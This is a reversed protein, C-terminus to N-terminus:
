LYRAPSCCGPDFPQESGSIFNAILRGSIPGQSFGMHSHGFAMWLNKHNPAPGVLPLTDPVTPRRGMWPEDLLLPGMPLAERARPIVKELQLPTPETERYVLNTGSSVRMGMNMQSMVYSADVDFIPRNLMRGELPEIITHYGREIALPNAYGLQKLIRPTWAGLCIVLRQHAGQQDGNLMWQGSRREVSHIDSQRIEGGADVFMKAYAKCLEEPNRISISDEILVGCDFIPNLDPELEAIEEATVVRYAVECQDMLDREIQDRVFSERGRYLKLGGSENALHTVGAQKIWERHMDISPITIRRMSHGDKFYTRRNCRILFRLLWPSLAAFHPYHLLFDTDQNFALRHLRHWLEPAAIPTINSYSLVGANGSSTEEGVGRRDILTVQYDRRQLELACSIGVMGGGIVTVTETM